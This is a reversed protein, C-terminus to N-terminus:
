SLTCDYAGDEEAEEEVEEEGGGGDVGAGTPTEPSSGTPPAGRSEEARSAAVVTESLKSGTSAQFVDVQVQESATACLDQLQPRLLNLFAKYGLCDSSAWQEVALLGAHVSQVTERLVEPSCLLSVVQKIVNVDRLILGIVVCWELCGAEMFVHLLYRLQVQSKHPGKNALEMSIHELESQSLSLTSVNEDVMTWDGDVMSSTETLDTASGISCEEPKNILPSLFAEQTQAAGHSSASDMEKPGAGLADLWNHKTTTVPPRTADLDSNLFSDSSQSKLLRTSLGTRCRGNKLPSSISCTSSTPIVPFPWLFDKHLRKLAPVFDRLRAVRLRERCLWGILEFGLQASFCGLDRLREQELLRRAHRWLLMDIYM